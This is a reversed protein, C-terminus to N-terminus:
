QYQEQQINISNQLNKREERSMRGKIMRFRVKGGVLETVGVNSEHIVYNPKNFNLPANADSPSDLGARSSDPHGHIVADADAPVPIAAGFSKRDQSTTVGEPAVVVGDKIYGGKETTGRKVKFKEKNEVVKADLNANGKVDARKSLAENVSDAEICKSASSGPCAAMGTPDTYKYPNNNAYAYRNFSHIDRCGLPDNSYFRSLLPDYYRVQMYNLGTDDDWQHGTYGVNTNDVSQSGDGLSVQAETM